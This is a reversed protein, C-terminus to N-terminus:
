FIEIDATASEDETGIDTDAAVDSRDEWGIKFHQQDDLYYTKDLFVARVQTTGPNTGAAAQLRVFFRFDNKQTPSDIISQIPLVYCSGIFNRGQLFEPVGFTSVYNLPRVERWNTPATMNACMAVPNDLQPNGFAANASVALRVETTDVTAGSGVTINPSLELTGSDYVSVTVTGEAYTPVLDVSVAGQCDYSLPQKTFYYETGRDTGLNNDNGVMLYGNFSNPSSTSISALAANSQTEGFQFSDDSKVVYVNVNTRAAGLSDYGGATLTTLSGINCGPTVIVGPQVQPSVTTVGQPKMVAAIVFIAAIVLVITGMDLKGKKYMARVKFRIM